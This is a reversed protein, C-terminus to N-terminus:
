ATQCSTTDLEDCEGAIAEFFGRQTCRAVESLWLRTVPGGIVLFQVTTIHYSRAIRVALPEYVGGNLTFATLSLRLVRFVRHLTTGVKTKDVIRRYSEWCPHKVTAIS